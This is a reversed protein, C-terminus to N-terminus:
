SADKTGTIQKRAQEGYKWIDGAGMTMVIQGPECSDMIKETLLANDDVVQVTQPDKIKKLADGILHASVGTIPEERAPYIPALIVKDAASLVKAFDQYFDRTRSFLHPQFIVTLKETWGKRAASITAAVESPHHAYDDMFLCDGHVGLLQFRREAGKFEALGGAIKEFPMNLELGCAVAALANKVNHAGPLSLVIRGIKEGRLYVDFETRMKEYCMDRATLDADAELGYTMVPRRIAPRIEQLRPDDACLVVLGDPLTQNAFRIFTQKLDDLDRYIDLHDEELNTIIALTPELTLFSRDYEDAETVFLNGKGLRAGSLSGQMRGGVVATPDMGASVLMHTIMLSTTTKGHTGAVAIGYHRKMMMGLLEARRISEIHMDLAAQREPNDAPVASSYILYDAGTVNQAAHGIRIEAGMSKLIDTQISQVRDSGSVRQGQELLLGALASM